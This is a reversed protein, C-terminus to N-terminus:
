RYRPCSAQGRPCQEVSYGCGGDQLGNVLILGLTADEFARRRQYPPGHGGDCCYKTPTGSVTKSVRRRTFDYGYSGVAVSNEEVLALRNESDYYYEYTGMM